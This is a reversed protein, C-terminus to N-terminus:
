PHSSRSGSGATSPLRPPASFTVLPALKGALSPGIGRVQQLAEMSGFPGNRSRDEVIRRALAPGIGPLADLEAEAARDLDV